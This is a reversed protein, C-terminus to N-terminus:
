KSIIYYMPNAPDCATSRWLILLKVVNVFNVLTWCIEARRMSISLKVSTLLM